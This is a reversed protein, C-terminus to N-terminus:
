SSVPAVWYIQKHGRAEMTAALEEAEARSDKRAVEFRNGNDDQRWVVWRTTLRDRLLDRCAPWESDVISFMASDRLLGDEGPAWSRSWNRLVGELRAGTREIAARSRENRADTKFDVRAVKWTEFAHTCLLLKAERNVGTGQASGALWTFGVEVAYLEDRDPWLRPNWYATAGVARGSARSVQAFPMMAGASAHAHLDDIYAPVDGATPVWTYRYSTRDEEAAAALAAAHRHDLPELRVRAGDLVPAAVTTPFPM